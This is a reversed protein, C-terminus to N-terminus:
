RVYPRDEYGEDIDVLPHSAVVSSAAPTSVLTSSAVGMAASAAASQEIWDATKAWEGATRQDSIPASPSDLLLAEEVTM